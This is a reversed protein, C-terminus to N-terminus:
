NLEIEVDSLNAERTDEDADHAMGLRGGWVNSSRRGTSESARQCRICHTAYPLVELRALPIADGCGECMGFTGDRMKQLATEIAVLERSEVEALQSSIEDSDSDIAQDVSDGVGYASRSSMSDLEGALLRSLADRRRELIQKMKKKTAASMKKMKSGSNLRMTQERRSAGRLAGPDPTECLLLEYATAEYDAAFFGVYKVLESFRLANRHSLQTQCSNGNGEFASPLLPDHHAM